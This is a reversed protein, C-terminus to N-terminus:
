PTEATSRLLRCPRSAPRWRKVTSAVGAIPRPRMSRPAYYEDVKILARERRNFVMLGLLKRPPQRLDSLDGDIIRYRGGDRRITGPAIIYSRAEGDDGCGRVDLGPGLDGARPPVAVGPVASFYAHIGGRPTSVLLGTDDLGWGLEGLAAVAGARAGGCDRDVDLVILKRTAIAPMADPWTRWWHEIQGADDTASKFGREIM